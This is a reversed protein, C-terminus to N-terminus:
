KGVQHCYSFDHSQDRVLINQDKSLIYFLHLHMMAKLQM